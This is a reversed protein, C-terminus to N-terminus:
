ILMDYMNLIYTLSIKVTISCHNSVIPCFNIINFMHGETCCILGSILIKLSFEKTICESAKQLANMRQVRM